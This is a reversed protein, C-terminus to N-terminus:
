ERQRQDSQMAEIEHLRQVAQAGKRLRKAIEILIERDIAALSDIVEYARGLERAENRRHEDFDVAMFAALHLDALRAFVRAQDVTMGTREPPPEFLDGPRVGYIEALKPVHSIGMDTQGREWKHVASASIELRSGVQDLTLGAMLRCQKLRHTLERQM